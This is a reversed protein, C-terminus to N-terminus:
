EVRLVWPTSLGGAAGDWMQLFLDLRILGPPLPPAVFAVTAGGVGDAQLQGGPLPWVRSPASPDPVAIGFGGRPSPHPRRGSSVLGRLLAYPPAHRVILTVSQGPAARSADATLVPPQALPMGVVALADLETAQAFGFDSEAFGRYIEGGGRASFVTADHASPSQVLFLLEGDEPDFSIGKVDGIAGAGTVAADVWAQIQAESAIRAIAGNRPDWALVDGDEVAGIVTASVGDRLSFCVRGDADLALADVDIASTTGLAARLEDETHVAVIEGRETLRLVDGDRWGDFDSDSSFWFDLLSPSGGGSRPAWALADVGAPLDFEGDVDVDGLLANWGGAPLWLRAWPEGRELRLLEEDRCLPDQALATDASTSALVVVRPEAGQPLAGAILAFLSILGM